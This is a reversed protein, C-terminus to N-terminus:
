RQRAVPLPVCILSRPIRELVNLMQPGTGHVQFGHDIFAFYQQGVVTVFMGFDFQVSDEPVRNGEILGVSTVGM